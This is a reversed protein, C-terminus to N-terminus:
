KRTPPQEIAAADQQSKGQLGAESQQDRKSRERRLELLTSFFGQERAGLLDWARALAVGYAVIMATTLSDLYGVGNPDQRLRWGYYIELAYIVLSSIVLGVSFSLRGRQWSRERTLNVGIGVTNPLGLFVAMVIAVLGINTRPVTGALSIFFLNSLAVFASSATSRSEFHSEEGVISRPEVAIAVFLLGILAASAGTSSIFFDKYDTPVM